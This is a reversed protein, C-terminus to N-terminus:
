ALSALPTPDELVTFNSVLLAGQLTLSVLLLLLMLRRLPADFEDMATPVSDVPFWLFLLVTFGAGLRFSDSAM